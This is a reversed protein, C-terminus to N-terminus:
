ILDSRFRIEITQGLTLNLYGTGSPSYNNMKYGIELTYNNNSSIYYGNGVLNSSMLDNSGNVVDYFDLEGTYRMWLYYDVNFGAGDINTGTLPNTSIYVFFYDGTISDITFTDNFEIQFMIHTANHDIWVKIIDDEGFTPDGYPDTM